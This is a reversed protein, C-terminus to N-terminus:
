VFSRFGTKWYRLCEDFFFVSICHCVQMAAVL